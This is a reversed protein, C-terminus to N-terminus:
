FWHMDLTKEFSKTQETIIKRLIIEPSVPQVPSIEVRHPHEIVKATEEALDPNCYYRMFKEGSGSRLVTYHGVVDDKGDRKLDESILEREVMSSLAPSDSIKKRVGDIEDSVAGMIDTKCTESLPVENGDKDHCVTADLDARVDKLKKEKDM